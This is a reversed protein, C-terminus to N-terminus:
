CIEYFYLTHRVYIHKDFIDPFSCDIVFQTTTELFTFMADPKLYWFIWFSYFRYSILCIFLLFSTVYNRFISARFFFLSFLDVVCLESLDKAAATWWYKIVTQTLFLVLLFFIWWWNEGNLLTLCFESVSSVVNFHQLVFHRESLSWHRIETCLHFIVLVIKNLMNVSLLSRTVEM